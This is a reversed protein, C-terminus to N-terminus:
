IYRKFEIINKDKRSFGNHSSLKFKGNGRISIVDGVYVKKDSDKCEEHNLKVNQGKILNKANERSVKSLEKVICDLRMSSVMVRLMEFERFNGFILIEDLLEVKVKSKSIRSLHSFLFEGMPKLCYVYWRDAIKIIDGIKERNIGLNLISGLIHRHEFYDDKFSILDFIDNIELSIGDKVVIVKRDYEEGNFIVEFDFNSQQVIKLAYSFELPSFFDSVYYDKRSKEMSVLGDIFKSITKRIDLNNINDLYFKSDIM